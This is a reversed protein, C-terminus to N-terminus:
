SQQIKRFAASRRIQDWRKSRSGGASACGCGAKLAQQRRNVFTVRSGTQARRTDFLRKTRLSFPWIIRSAADSPAPNTTASAPAHVCRHFSGHTIRVLKRGKMPLPFMLGDCRDLGKRRMAQAQGSPRCPHPEKMYESRKVRVASGVTPWLHTALFRHGKAVASACALM